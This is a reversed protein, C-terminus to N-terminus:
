RRMLWAALFAVTFFVLLCVLVIVGIAGLIAKLTSWFGFTAVLAAILLIIIIPMLAEKQDADAVVAAFRVGTREALRLTVKL